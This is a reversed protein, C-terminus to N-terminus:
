YCGVIPNFARKFTGEIRNNAAVSGELSFQTRQVVQVDCISNGQVTEISLSVGPKGDGDQDFIREDEVDLPLGVDDDM